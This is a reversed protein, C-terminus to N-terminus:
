SVLELAAPRGSAALLVNDILRTTGVAAAISLLGGERVDEIDELSDPNVVSVYDIGVGAETAMVSRMADLLQRSSTEGRAVLDAAAGLARNIVLAQRRQEPSLFSNRSSMALGDAERVIPCSVVKLDFNLDDVMKRLVALQAADKQGFFAHTPGVIHFLKAVITAVGRMHGPRSSGEGRNGVGEVEVWTSSGVTYMQEASPAFVLDVEEHQFAACDAEFTRPYKALDENPAFQTPNVFISAATVDCMAKSAQVLSLHGAHLAGMTPVLGLSRGARRLGRCAAQMDEITDVVLM